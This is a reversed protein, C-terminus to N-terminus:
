LSKALVSLRNKLIFCLSQLGQFYYHSHVGNEGLKFRHISGDHGEIVSSFASCLLGKGSSCCYTSASRKDNGPAPKTPEM